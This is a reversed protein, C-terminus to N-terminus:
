LVEGSDARAGKAAGAFAPGLRHYLVTIAAKPEASVPRGRPRPHIAFARLRRAPPGPLMCFLGSAFGPASSPFEQYAAAIRPKAESFPRPSYQTRRWLHAPRAM